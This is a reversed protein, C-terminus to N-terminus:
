ELLILGFSQQNQNDNKLPEISFGNQRVTAFVDIGCAEVSPRAEKPRKCPSHVDCSECLRCPGAGMGFAKYYGTLFAERELFYALYRILFSQGARILLAESFEQLVKLTQECSPSYPPCTLSKGYDECGYQCKWQVWSSVVVKKVPIIAAEEAGNDLAQRILHNIGKSRTGRETLTKESTRDSCLDMLIGRKINM